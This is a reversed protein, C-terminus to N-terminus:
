VFLVLGLGLLAAAAFLIAAYFQVRGTQLVRLAGGSGEAGAGV